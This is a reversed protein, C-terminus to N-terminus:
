YPHVEEKLLIATDMPSMMELAVFHGALATEARPGSEVVRQQFTSFRQSRVSLNGNTRFHPVGISTKFVNIGAHNLYDLHLM